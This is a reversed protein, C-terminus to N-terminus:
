LFFVSSYCNNKENLILLLLLHYLLKVFDSLLCCLWLCFHLCLISYHFSFFSLFMFNTATKRNAKFIFCLCFMKNVFFTLTFIVTYRNTTQIYHLPANIISIHKIYFVFSFCYLCFTMEQKWVSQAGDM